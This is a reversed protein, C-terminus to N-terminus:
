YFDMTSEYNIGDKYCDIVIHTPMNSIHNNLKLINGIMKRDYPTIDIDYYNLRFNNLCTNCQHVISGICTHYQTLDYTIIIQGCPCPKGCKFILYKNWNYEIIDAPIKIQLNVPWLNKRKRYDKKRCGMFYSYVSAINKTYLSESAFRYIVGIIDIYDRHSVTKPRLVLLMASLRSIQFDDFNQQSLRDTLLRDTIGEM